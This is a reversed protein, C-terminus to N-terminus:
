YVGSFKTGSTASGHGKSPNVEGGHGYKIIGGDKKKKVKKKKKKYEKKSFEADEAEDEIISSADIFDDDMDRSVPIISITLVGSGTEEKDKSAM